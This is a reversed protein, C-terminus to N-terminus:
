KRAQFYRKRAYEQTNHQIVELDVNRWDNFGIDQFRRHRWALQFYQLSVQEFHVSRAVNLNAILVLNGKCSFQWPYATSVQILLYFFQIGQNWIHQIYQRKCDIWEVSYHECTLNTVFVCYEVLEASTWELYHRCSWVWKTPVGPQKHSHDFLAM